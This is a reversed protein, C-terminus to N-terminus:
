SSWARAWDQRNRHCTGGVAVIRLLQLGDALLDFSSATLLLHKSCSSCYDKTSSDRSNELDKALPVLTVALQDIHLQM